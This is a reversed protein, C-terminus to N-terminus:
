VPVTCCVYVLTRVSLTFICCRIENDSLARGIVANGGAARVEQAQKEVMASVPGAESPGAQSFMVPPAKPTKAAKVVTGTGVASGASSGAPYTVVTTASGNTASGLGGPIVMMSGIPASSTLPGGSGPIYLQNLSARPIMLRAGARNM